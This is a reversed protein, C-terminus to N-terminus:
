ICEIKNKMENPLLPSEPSVITTVLRKKEDHSDHDDRSTSKSDKRITQSIKKKYAEARISSNRKMIKHVIRNRAAHRQLLNYCDSSIEQLHNRHHFLM